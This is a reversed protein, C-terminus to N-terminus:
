NNFQNLNDLLGAKNMLKKYWELNFPPLGALYHNVGKGFNDKWEILYLKKDGMSFPISGLEAASNADLHKEGSLLIKGSEVDTVTFKLESPERTSNAAALAQGWNAPEKFMLCIRRQSRKVYEFALKKEFYYDVIADSFQPWGDILNWWIIGTRRWMASRFLEIFFKKAEAQVCQSAFAFTELDDPVIGFLEKIQRAMLASRRDPGDAFFDITPSSSHLQWEDNGQWPWLKDGSIFKMISKPSPCGHYGIESAFHATTNRYFDSKFSDRPGWLHQEPIYREGFEWANSDVFPSSPLFPLSPDEEWAVKPLLERTISNRNPDGMGHWSFASDCENDGAWLIISPHQRLRRMTKRVELELRSKFEADQPYIACGMIFDQWVCIGNEDCLDYFRDSEYLNGGWCRLFNCDLEISLEIAKDVREIDRSHFADLPVWNSGKAFIREHNILFLFEGEGMASTTSTRKLEVQRIGCNFSKADVAKGDRLLTVNVAYLSAEGYGRPWWLAPQDVHILERAAKPCHIFRRVSFKSEGCVGEVQIEYRGFPVPMVSVAYSLGLCASSLDEAVSKTFLFVREIHEKNKLNISVPRWLGASVARPMIDWGYMHPAKRVFLSEYGGTHGVLCAPYDYKMAELVAPRIHIFLENEGNRLKNALAIEHEILMNDCSTLHEGNLYIEAYTDLGEFILFPDVDELIGADVMFKRFYYVHRDELENVKKMNIGFFPEPILGAAHLDLEFNGPVKAPIVDLGAHKLEHSSKLPLSERSLALSWDGDLIIKMTM